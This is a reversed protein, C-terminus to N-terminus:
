SAPMKARIWIIKRVFSLVLPTKIVDSHKTISDQHCKLTKYYLRSSMETNQVGPHDHAQVSLLPCLPRTIIVDCIISM